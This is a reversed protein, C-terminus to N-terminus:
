ATTSSPDTKEADSLQAQKGAPLSPENRSTANASLQFSTQFLLALADARTNVVVMASDHADIEAAVRDWSWPSDPLDYEVRKLRAFHGESVSRPVIDVVDDRAWRIPPQTATSLVVTCGYRRVLEDLVDTITDLLHVPLAQVEDLIIVSDTINHLKRCKSPRNSLLSELLQVTTTVVLPADWNQTALKNPETVRAQVASHHELVAEAGFILRYVAATQDTISTFPVAVIVRDMGHEDAHKLAFTVSSRTKGGGTPVAMRYVGRTGIRAAEVAYEYVERRVENVVGTKGAFREQDRELTPWLEAVGPREGNRRADAKLRDFHAETDLYDADVLASFVMRLFMELRTEIRLGRRKTAAVATSPPVLSRFAAWAEVAAPDALANQLQARSPLGTHHGLVIPAAAPSGLELALLAGYVAHEVREAVRGAHTDKLRKQFAPNYKGVDHIMGALYALDEGGFKGAKAAALQAVARLHEELDHWGGGKPPTHAYARTVSQTLQPGGTDM